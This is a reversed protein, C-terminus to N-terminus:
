IKNDKYSKLLENCRKDFSIEPNIKQIHKLLYIIKLTSFLKVNIQIKNSSSKLWMTYFSKKENKALGLQISVSKIDM